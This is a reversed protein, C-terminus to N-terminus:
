HVIWYVWGASAVAMLVSFAAVAAWDRKRLREAQFM